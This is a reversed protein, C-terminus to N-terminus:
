TPEDECDYQEDDEEEVQLAIETVCQMSKNSLDAVIDTIDKKIDFFGFQQWYNVMAYISENLDNGFVDEFTNKQKVTKPDDCSVNKHLNYLEKSSLVEPLPILENHVSENKPCLINAFSGM